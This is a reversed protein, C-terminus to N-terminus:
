IMRWSKMRLYAWVFGRYLSTKFSPKIWTRQFEMFNQWRHDTNLRAVYVGAKSPRHHLKARQTFVLNGLQKLRFAFDLESWESTEIYADSFGGCALGASKNVAFNCCELYGAEGEYDCWEFNSAM